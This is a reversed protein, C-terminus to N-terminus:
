TLGLYTPLSELFLARDTDPTESSATQAIYSAFVALEEPPLQKLTASLQELQAVASDPDITDDDSLGLFLTIDIIAQMLITNM